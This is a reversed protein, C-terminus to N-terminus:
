RLFANRADRCISYIFYVVAVGTAVELGSGIIHTLADDFM